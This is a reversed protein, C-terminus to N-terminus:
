WAPKQTVQQQARLTYEVKGCTQCTRKWRPTTKSPVYMPGRWDVGMTGPPDGAITYGEEYKPDYQEDWDHRCDREAADLRAKAENFARETDSVYARLTRIERTM